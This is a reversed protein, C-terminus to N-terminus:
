KQPSPHAAAIPQLGEAAQKYEGLGFFTMALLIKTQDAPKRAEEKQFSELAERFAGSKFCALGLDLYIGPLNPDIAIAQKYAQIAAKYDGKEAYSVGRNAYEIAEAKNTQAYLLAAALSAVQLVTM